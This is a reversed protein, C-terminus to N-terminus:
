SATSNSGASAVAGTAVLQDVGSIELLRVVQDRAGTLALSGGRAEVRKQVILIAQLGSSDVFSVGELDLLCSPASSALLANAGEVLSPGTAIDLEGEVFLIERDDEAVHRLQLLSAMLLGGCDLM